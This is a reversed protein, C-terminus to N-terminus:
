GLLKASFIISSNFSRLCGSRLMRIKLRAPNGFTSLAKRNLSSLAVTVVRRPKPVSQVRSSIRATRSSKNLCPVERATLTVRELLSSIKSDNFALSFLDKVGRDM